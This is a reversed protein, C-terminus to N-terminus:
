ESMAWCFESPSSIGRIPIDLGKIKRIVSELSINSPVLGLRSTMSHETGKLFRGFHFGSTIFTIPGFGGRRPVEAKM